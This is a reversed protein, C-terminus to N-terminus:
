QVLTFKLSFGFNTNSTPFTNAVFPNNMSRDAFIQLNFRDSLVYDATAGISFIKQGVVPQNVDEVLKRALTKNDRISLDFKINLDSKLAKQGGGTKLIIQVNDFRYGAGFILENIRADTVQNSTLNLTVTRSKRWEFRTTLSNKWNMDVNILPSFQENITVVNIEYQQVFNNQLDRLRSLGDADADWNLNTTYAGIEYTSRYQHMLNISRFVRQVFDFKSLGDFSIRWNPMMRLASPFTELGIRNPSTKTYAALFAPIMVESSTQGYGSKYVGDIPNGTIPDIDPNYGPDTKQRGAARRQSIIVINKKFAEFTPSVYDNNKSIKEFSTGWSIISISFNGNIIRNRTSDPFNGNYDAIYYASESELFRRDANVDIRLGPFPEILSRFSLERKNDYIAPTNLLTDKSLWGNTIARNFFNRDSYGLIFPWGPALKGNYSSM